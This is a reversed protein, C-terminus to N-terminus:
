KFIGFDHTSFVRGKEVGYPRSRVYPEQAIGARQGGPRFLVDLGVWIIMPWISGVGDMVELWGNRERLEMMM